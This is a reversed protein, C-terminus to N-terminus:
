EPDSFLPFLFDMLNIRLGSRDLAGDLRVAKDGADGPDVALKPMASPLTVFAFEAVDIRL